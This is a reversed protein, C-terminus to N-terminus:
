PTAALAPTAKQPAKQENTDIVKTPAQRARAAEPTNDAGTPRAKFLLVQALLHGIMATQFMLGVMLAV